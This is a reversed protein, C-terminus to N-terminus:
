ITVGCLFGRKEELLSSHMQETCLVSFKKEAVVENDAKREREGKGERVEQRILVELFASFIPFHRSNQVTTRWDTQRRRYCTDTKQNDNGRTRQV